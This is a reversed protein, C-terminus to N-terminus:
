EQGDPHPREVWELCRSAAVPVTVCSGQLTDGYCTSYLVTTEAQEQCDYRHDWWAVGVALTALLLLCLILADDM